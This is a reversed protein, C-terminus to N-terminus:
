KWWYEPQQFQKTKTYDVTIEEGRKIDRLAFLSHNVGIIRIEASPDYSHNLHRGFNNIRTTRSVGDDFTQMPEVCHNIFSGKSINEKSFVGVGEIGSNKVEYNDQEQEQLYLLYETIIM